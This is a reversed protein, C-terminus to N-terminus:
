KGKRLESFRSRRLKTRKALFNAFKDYKKKGLLAWLVRLIYPKELLNDTAVYAAMSKDLYFKLTGLETAVWKEAVVRGSYYGAKQAILPYLCCLFDPSEGLDIKINSLAAPRFWFVNGTPIIPAKEESIPIALNLAKIRSFNEAWISDQFYDQVSPLSSLLGLRPNRKFTDFVQLVFSRSPLTNELLKRYSSESLEQKGLWLALPYDRIKEFIDSSPQYVDVLDAFKELIESDESELVVAIRVSIPSEKQENLVYILNLNNFVDTQNYNRLLSPWILDTDYDTEDHLYRYLESASEGNLKDAPNDREDFFTRKKFVPCSDDRIMQTPFDLLPYKSLARYKEMDVSTAWRYGLDTFYKTFVAEHYGVAENYNHIEPLNEWYDHFAKSSFMKRRVAIFSAQIHEPIYGYQCVGTLDTPEGFHTTLGWFDLEPQANMKDFTEDFSAVPGLITDNFLILEDFDDLKNWGIHSLGTKWAAADLGLNERVLIEGYEDLRESLFEGNIVILFESVSPLIGDLLRYVNEDVIGNCDYFVFIGLRKM